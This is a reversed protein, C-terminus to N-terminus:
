PRLSIKLSAQSLDIQQLSVSGFTQERPAGAIRINDFRVEGISSPLRLNVSGDPNLTSQTKGTEYRVDSMSTEAELSDLVATMTLRSGARIFYKEFILVMGRLEDGQRLEHCDVMKSTLGDKEVLESVTRAAEAVTLALYCTNREM